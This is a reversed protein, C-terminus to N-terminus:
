EHAPSISTGPTPISATVSSTYFLTAAYQALCRNIAREFDRKLIAAGSALIEAKKPATDPDLNPDDGVCEGVALVRQDRNDTLKVKVAYRIRFRNVYPPAVDLSWRSTRVELVLDTDPRFRPANPPSREIKPGGPREIQRKGKEKETVVQLRLGYQVSIADAIEPGLRTSPDVLGYQDRITRGNATMALAIALGGPGGTQEEYFDTTPQQVLLLSQPKARSLAARDLPSWARHCGALWTLLVWVIAIGRTIENQSRM